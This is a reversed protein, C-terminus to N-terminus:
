NRVFELRECVECGGCREELRMLEGLDDDGVDADGEPDGAEDVPGDRAGEGFHEADVEERVEPHVVPEDENSEQLM